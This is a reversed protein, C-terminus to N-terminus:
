RHGDPSVNAIPKGYRWFTNAATCEVRIRAVTGSGRVIVFPTKATVPYPGYTRVPYDDDEQPIEDAFIVSLEIEGGSNITFDPRIRELFVSVHSEQLYFWGSLFGSNLIEGDYDTGTEFFKLVPEYGAGIPPGWISEDTWASIGPAATGYDWLVQDGVWTAKVYARCEGFSGVVPFRWMIENYFTNADAHIKDLNARDIGNPGFVFDYVTCTLPQVTGGRLIFFGQQGM